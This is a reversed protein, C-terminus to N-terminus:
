CWGRESSKRDERKGTGRKGRSDLFVCCLLVLDGCVVVYSLSWLACDYKRGETQKDKEKSSTDEVSASKAQNNGEARSLM